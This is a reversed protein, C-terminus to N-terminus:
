RAQPRDALPRDAPQYPYSAQGGWQEAMALAVGWFTQSRLRSTFHTKLWPRVGEPTPWRWWDDVGRHRIRKGKEPRQAAGQPYSQPSHALALPDSQPSLVAVQPYSPASDPGKMSSLRPLGRLWLSTAKTYPDGFWWPHIVQHPKGIATWLSGIPNEVCVRSCPSQWLARAFDEAAAQLDPNRRRYAVNVRSLYTCPPHAIIIDWPGGRVAEVADGQIHPGMGDSPVLDCSWADHGFLRFADRVRGSRECAVLVRLVPNFHDVATPVSCTTPAQGAVV